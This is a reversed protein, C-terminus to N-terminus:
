RDSSRDGSQSGLASAADESSTRSAEAALEPHKLLFRRREAAFSKLSDDDGYLSRRFGTRDGHFPDQVVDREILARYADIRPKLNAWDLDTEAIERITELYDARWAEVSLIRAIVPRTELENALALPTQTMGGGGGGPGGRGPGRGRRRQERGRTSDPRGTGRQGRARDRGQEESGVGRPPAGREQNAPRGGPGAGSPPGGPGFGPPPGGRGGPGGPGGRGPGHGGGFTENNDYPILHFIGDPDLYVYYDSGRSYYGDSDVFANDLALFRITEEVDLHKPLLEEIEEDPTEKLIRCLEILAKWDETGASGTKLEYRSEYEAPDEGHYTLAGGGSFDPPVKWRVGKSTDHTRKTFDKNIQELNGYVGLYTGNVVVRVFNAEPAPVHDSAINSFLVERMMSPDGNANLLNLTRRDDLRLDDDYADISIGFSKKAPMDFSTNGRYSVGVEGIPRGDLSLMAPVEVDTGHFVVMEQHWDNEPFELFLTHLVDRDYLGTGELRPVSKRDEVDIRLADPLTEPRPGEDGRDMGPRGGRRGRPTRPPIEKRALDREERDLRGDDNTDFREHLELDIFRSGQRDQPLGALGFSFAAGVTVLCAPITLTILLTRNIPNMFLIM